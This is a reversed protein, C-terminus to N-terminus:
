GPVPVPVPVPVQNARQQEVGGAGGRDGRVSACAVLSRVAFCFCHRCALVSPRLYALGENMREDRM